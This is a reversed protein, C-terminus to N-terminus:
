HDIGMAAVAAQLGGRMDMIDIGFAWTRCGTAALGLDYQVWSDHPYVLFACPAQYAAAHVVLQYLDQEDLREEWVKYKVDGIAVVTGAVEVVLDPNAHYHNTVNSFIRQESPHAQRTQIMPACCDQLTRRVAEQFLLELKLFWARPLQGTISGDQGFGVHELLAMALLLLDRDQRTSDRRVEAVIQQLDDALMRDGTSDAVGFLELYAHVAAVDHLALAVLSHLRDIEYLAASILQNKPTAYTLHPRSVAVAHSRGCARLAITRRLDLPGGFLATATHTVNTYFVDVERSVDARLAELFQHVLVAIGISGSSAPAGLRRITFADAHIDPLLTELLGPRKEVLDILVDNIIARGVYGAGALMVQGLRLEKKTVIGKEVLWRFQTDPALIRWLDPPIETAGREPVVLHGILGAPLASQAEEM